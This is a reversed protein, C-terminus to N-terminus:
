SFITIGYKCIIDWYSKTFLRKGLIVVKFYTIKIPKILVSGIEKLILFCLRVPKQQQQKKNYFAYNLDWFIFIKLDTSGIIVEFFKEIYATILRHLFATLMTFHIKSKLIHALFKIYSNSDRRKMTDKHNLRQMDAKM